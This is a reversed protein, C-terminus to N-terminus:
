FAGRHRLWAERGVIRADFVVQGEGGVAGLESVRHHLSGSEGSIRDGDQTAVRVQQELVRSSEGPEVRLVIEEGSDTGAEVQPDHGLDVM